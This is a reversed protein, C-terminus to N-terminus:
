NMNKIQMFVPVNFWMNVTDLYVFATFRFELKLTKNISKLAKLAVIISTLLATYETSIDM